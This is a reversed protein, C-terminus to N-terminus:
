LDHCMERARPHCHWFSFLASHELSCSLSSCGPSQGCFRQVLSLESSATPASHQGGCAHQPLPSRPPMVQVLARLSQGLRPASCPSSQGEPLLLEPCCRSLTRARSVVAEDESRSRGHGWASGLHVIPDCLLQSVGLDWLHKAQAM